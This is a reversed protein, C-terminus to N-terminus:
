VSLLTVASTLFVPEFTADVTLNLAWTGILKMPRNPKEETVIPPLEAAAFLMGSNM